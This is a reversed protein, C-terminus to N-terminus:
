LNKLSEKKVILLVDLDNSKDDIMVCTGFFSSVLRDIGKVVATPAAPGEGAVFPVLLLEDFLRMFYKKEEKLENL